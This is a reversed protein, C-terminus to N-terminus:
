KRNWNRVLIGLLIACLLIVSTPIVGYELLADTEYGKYNRGFDVFASQVVLGGLITPIFFLLLFSFWKGLPYKAHANVFSRINEAGYGWALVLVETFGVAFIGYQVIFHDVIGLLYLGNGFAFPLSLFFLLTCVILVLTSYDRKPFYDVVTSVVAQVLSIASTLALSLITLFFLIALINGAGSPLLTLAKPFIIFALEPGGKVVETVAVGEEGAMYGLTSFIAIGAVFAIFTDGLVVLFASKVLDAKKQFLAGYAFMVGFGLTLTFFVQAASAIWIDTHLLQEWKPVFFYLLGEGANELFVGNIALIGLCFLPLPTLILVSRSISKMGLFLIFYVFIWVLLLGVAIHLVIDGWEEIGSSRHLVTEYFFRETDAGWALTPSSILYNVSWSMIVSYYSMVGAASLVAWFGLFRFTGRKDAKALAEPAAKGTEQGVASEMLLIPFGILALCVLYAVFFAAGGYEYAMYPFRWVNGLGAASGIAALVFIKWSPWSSLMKSTTM